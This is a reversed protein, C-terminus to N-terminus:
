ENRELVMQFISGINPSDLLIKKTNSGDDLLLEFSGNLAILVQFLDKHAHGGRDMLHFMM